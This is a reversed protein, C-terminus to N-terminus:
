NILVQSLPNALLIMAVAYLATIVAPLATYKLVRFYNPEGVVQAAFMGALATPPMLDGLGALLSLASGVVIENQGLFSLLFPVGLVSASGYASVAGFLPMSVSVGVYKMASPLGLTMGVLEGRIGVLTMIQIFMGVGVLIAMVPLGQHISHKAVRLLNFRRGTVTSVATGIMFVLAIGLHDSLAPILRLAILLVAVLILPLFLRFGYRAVHNEGLQSKLADIDIDKIYKHTLGLNVGIALPVTAVLLPVDFGVFPMDVGSGLIMTPLSIPPAIMGYIASMAIVAAVRPRPIGCALLVPAAIAGTTLVTATSQGTIMGPFMIFFTLGIVLLKPHRHLGTLLGRSISSLAGSAELVGMFVMASAIILIPDIYTFSGEILHRLPFGGEGVIAGSVAAIVLSIGTPVRLWMACAVFVGLMILLIWIPDLV